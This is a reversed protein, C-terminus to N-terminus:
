EPMFCKFSFLLAYITQNPFGFFCVVQTQFPSLHHAVPVLINVAMYEYVNWAIGDLKNWMQKLIIREDVDVEEWQDWVELNEVLVGCGQM